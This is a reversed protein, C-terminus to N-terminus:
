RRRGIATVDVVDVVPQVLPRPRVDEPGTAGGGHENGGEVVVADPRKQAEAHSGVGGPIEGDGGEDM